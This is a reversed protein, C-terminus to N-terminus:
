PTVVESEHRERCDACVWCTDTGGDPATPGITFGVCPKFEQCDECTTLCTPQQQRRAHLERLLDLSQFAAPM